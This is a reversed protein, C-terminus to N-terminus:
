DDRLRRRMAEAAVARSELLMAELRLNAEKRLHALEQILTPDPAVSGFAVSRIKEETVQVAREAELWALSAARSLPPV